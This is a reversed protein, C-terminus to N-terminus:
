SVESLDKGRGKGPSFTPLPHVVRRAQPTAAVDLHLPAVRRAGICVSGTTVDAVVAPAPFTAEAHISGGAEAAETM